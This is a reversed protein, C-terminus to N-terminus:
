PAIPFLVRCDSADIAQLEGDADRV